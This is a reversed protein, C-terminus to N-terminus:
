IKGRRKTKRPWGAGAGNFGCPLLQDPIAFPTKRPWGAGAGNFGGAHTSLYGGGTENEPAMRGRGWQLRQLEQVTAMIAERKGPGDPGPGM